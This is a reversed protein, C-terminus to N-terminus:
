TEQTFGGRPEVENNYAALSSRTFIRGPSRATADGQQAALNTEASDLAISVRGSSFSKLWSIAEDYNKEVTDTVHDGHLIYRAIDATIKPLPQPVDSLPLSLRGRLYSNVIAEADDIALNVVAAVIAGTSEEERNTLEILEQEGFRTILEAQTTYDAM